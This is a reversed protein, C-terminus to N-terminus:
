HTKSAQRSKPGARHRVHKGGYTGTAHRTRPANNATSTSRIPIDKKTSKASGPLHIIAFQPKPVSHREFWNNVLFPAVSTSEVPVAPTRSMASVTWQVPFTERPLKITPQSGPERDEFLDDEDEVDKSTVLGADKLPDTYDVHQPLSVAASVAPPVVDFPERTSSAVALVPAAPQAMPRVPSQKKGLLGNFREQWSPNQVIPTSVARFPSVPAPPPMSVRAAWSLPLPSQLQQQQLESPSALEPQVPTPPTPPMAPPLKVVAKERPFHVIPRSSDGDFAPHLSAKEEAPPPSPTRPPEPHTYTFARRDQAAYGHTSQPFFRSGRGTPGSMMRPGTDAGPLSGVAGFLSSTPTSTQGMNSAQRPGAQEGLHVPKRTESYPYPPQRIGTRLEEERKAAMERQVRESDPGAVHHFNNWSALSTSNPPGSPFGNITPHHAQPPQPPAIPAPKTTPFVSDAESDVALPPQDPSTAPQHLYSRSEPVHHNVYQTQPSRSANPSKGNMWGQASSSTRSLDQPAYGALTHDFTGNGLSKNNPLGWLNGSPPSRHDSRVDAWGSRAEAGIPTPKPFKPSPEPGAASEQLSPRVEHGARGGNLTPPAEKNLDGQMDKLTTHDPKAQSTAPSPAKTPEAVQGAAPSIKKISDLPHVKMMGYQQPEGTALPQPPKPPSHDSVSHVSPPATSKTEKESTSEETKQDAKVKTLKPAPGLSALKLRIREQKEAELRQEEEIKRKRAREINEKMLARQAARQAEIDADTASAIATPIYDSTGRSQYTPTQMRSSGDRSMSRGGADSESPPGEFVPAPTEGSKISMRRGFQGSGGSITSSARRRAQDTSTRHTQFAASPEAPAHADAAAPRQLVAPARFSQDHKSMRRRGEPVAEYRGSSPMYLERPQGSSPERWSRNFDDASIEKAPSLAPMAPSQPYAHGSPYRHVPPAPIQPNIPVPSVKDVPPLPAWPSKAPAPAPATRSSTLTAKDM